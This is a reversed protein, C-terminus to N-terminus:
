WGLIGELNKTLKELRERCDNNKEKEKEIVEPPAKAVFDDNALKRNSKELLTNVKELEKQLRNKELEVDILDSLPIFIEAGKIVCSASQLPKLAESDITLTEVNALLKVYEASDKIWGSIKKDTAKIIVDAKKGPPVNMEARVNRIAGVLEQILEMKEELGSNIFARPIKLWPTVSLSQHERKIGIEDYLCATLEETLFPMFPNMMRFSGDFIYFLIHRANDDPPSDTNSYVRPKVMELYWDCLDRWFFDYLAKAASNFKYDKFCEQVYNSTRAFRSLIWKDPVDVPTPQVSSDELKFGELNMMVLRTANWIKNSFNRGLEFSKKSIFPDQGEPTLLLLTIRMADTGYDGIIELPDIGNGLSKSMKVGQTDRVTGHILVDKFPAEGMFEYGAMVMRAVWLFIIENATFLAKTPYFDKLEPTKDPWGFTSFPWLWSSFWTDLVDEDQRVDDSGCGNCETVKERSVIEKGCSNCYFVPIRHGWWLQRSICWDRINNMWHLYTKSWHEPHFVVAGDEVAKRAPAALASMKVFWQESLYPEIEEHCRYCSAVPVIYDDTKELLEKKDLEAVIKKRADYRNLGKYKGANENLTGDQNLINIRELNHRTGIEFDNADHAPTVKLAGTGFEMDVYDDGVIPLERDMIPLIASKGILKKYREDNPNVAVATDGLMTEPRTTAITLYKDSGKIKYKLYWLKGNKENRELEDDSLSTHCRPCWNVIYKGRYVLGKRYLHVFVELVAKSLQEDMTFRTRDWDCSCGIMKLQNIINEGNKNKWDWVRELFKTRGIKQRSTGERVLQKEVVVQTAIGAHDVGPLWETEHGNMRYYRIIVDQLTNNLAHGLHLIDTVNPPPIVISYVPKKSGPKAKFYGNEQWLKRWKDEILDPQFRKAIENSSM